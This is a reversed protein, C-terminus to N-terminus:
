GTLPSPVTEFLDRNMARSNEQTPQYDSAPMVQLQHQLLNRNMHTSLPLVVAPDPMASPSLTRNITAVVSFTHGCEPNRCMYLLERSTISIQVSSRTFSWGKCHPCLMKM